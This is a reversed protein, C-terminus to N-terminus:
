ASHPRANWVGAARAADGAVCASDIRWAHVTCSDVGRRFDRACSTSTEWHCKSRTDSAVAFRCGLVAPYMRYRLPMGMANRAYMCRRTARLEEVLDPLSMERLEAVDRAM